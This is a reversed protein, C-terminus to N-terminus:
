RKKILKVAECVLFPILSLFFVLLWQGLRLPVVGFVTSVGPTIMVILVSAISVVSSINLYKNGFLGIKFVSHRSRTDFSHFIQSLALIAFAM